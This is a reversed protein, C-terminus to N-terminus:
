VSNKMPHIGGYVHLVNGSLTEKEEKISNEEVVYVKQKKTVLTKSIVPFISHSGLVVRLCCDVFNLNLYFFISLIVSVSCSRARNGEVM